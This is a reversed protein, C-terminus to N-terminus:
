IFLPAALAGGENCLCTLGVMIIYLINVVMCNPIYEVFGNAFVEEERLYDV